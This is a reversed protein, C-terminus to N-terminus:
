ANYRTHFCSQKGRLTRTLRLAHCHRQWCLSHAYLSRWRTTQLRTPCAIMMRSVRTMIQEERHLALTARSTRSTCCCFVWASAFKVNPKLSEQLTGRRSMNVSTKHTTGTTIDTAYTGGSCNM